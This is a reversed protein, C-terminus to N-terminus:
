HLCRNNLNLTTSFVYSFPPVYFWHCAADCRSEKRRWSNMIRRAWPQKARQRICSISERTPIPFFSFYFTSILRIVSEQVIIGFGLRCFSRLTNRTPCHASILFLSDGLFRMRGYSRPDRLALCNQGQHHYCVTFCCRYVLQFVEQGEAFREIYEDFSTLKGADLKSSEFRLLKSIPTQMFFVASSFVSHLAYINLVWVPLLRNCGSCGAKADSAPIYSPPPRSVRWRQPPTCGGGGSGTFPM